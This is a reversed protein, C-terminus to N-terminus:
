AFHIITNFKIQNVKTNVKITEDVASSSLIREDCFIEELFKEDIKIAIRLFLKSTLRYFNMKSIKKM